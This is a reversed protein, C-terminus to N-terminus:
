ILGLLKENAYELAAVPSEFLCPAKNEETFLIGPSEAPEKVHYSATFYETPIVHGNSRDMPHPDIVIWVDRGKISVKETM